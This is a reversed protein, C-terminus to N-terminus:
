LTTSVVSQSVSINKGIKCPVHMKLRWTFEHIIDHQLLVNWEAVSTWLIFNLVYFMVLLTRYAVYFM